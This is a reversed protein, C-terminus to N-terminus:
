LSELRRPAHLQSSATATSNPSIASIICPHRFLVRTFSRSLFRSRAIASHLKTKTIKQEWPTNVLLSSRRQAVALSARQLSFNLSFYCCYNSEAVFEATVPMAPM